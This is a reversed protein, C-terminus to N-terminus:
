IKHRFSVIRIQKPEYVRAWNAATKLEVSTPGANSALTGQFKIGRPHLIFSRRNILVDEGSGTMANRYVETPLIGVPSGNGLAMAGAGFLYSVYSGETGRCAWKVTNDTVTAGVTTPWTPETTGHSTGAQICEYVKGTDLLKDGLAYATGSDWAATAHIYPCGDDVIVRKGDYFAFDAGESDRITAIKELKKLAHYTASHMAVATLLSAADGLKDQAGIFNDTSFKTDSAGTVDLMNTTAADMAGTLISILRKQMDRAWFGAVLNGIAMMPDAGALAGALGTAGWAKVRRLIVAIDAGTGIAAATIASETMDDSEGTLDAWFPMNVVPGPSSALTNFQADNSVIGSQFLASLEMTKNIVYPDFVSPVIVNSLNTVAM